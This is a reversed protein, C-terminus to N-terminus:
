VAEGGTPPNPAQFRVWYRASELAALRSLEEHSAIRQDGDFVEWQWLDEQVGWISVATLMRTLLPARKGDEFATQSLVIRYGLYQQVENSESANV